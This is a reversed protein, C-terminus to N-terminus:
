LIHKLVLQNSFRCEAAFSEEKNRLSGTVNMVMQEYQRQENEKRLRKIREELEASRPPPPPPSPLEIVCGKMMEHLYNKGDPNQSFCIQYKM